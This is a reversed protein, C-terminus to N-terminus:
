LYPSFFFIDPEPSGVRGKKRGVRFKKKGNSYFFNTCFKLIFSTPVFIYTQNDVAKIHMLGRQRAAINCQAHQKCHMFLKTNCVSAIKIVCVICQFLMM